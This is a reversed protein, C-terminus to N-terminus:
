CEVLSCDSYRVAPLLSEPDLFILMRLLNVLTDVIKIRSKTSNVLVFAKVLLGYTARGAPWNQPLDQYDDPHFSLPDIDLPISEITKLIEESKGEKQTPPPDTDGAGPVTSRSNGDAAELPKQLLLDPSSRRRKLGAAIVSQDETEWEKSLKRAYEEDTLGDFKPSDANKNDPLDSKKAFFHDLTKGRHPPPASIKKRKKPLSAMINNDVDHPPSALRTTVNAFRTTM